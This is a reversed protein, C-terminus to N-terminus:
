RRTLSLSVCLPSQHAPTVIAARAQPALKIGDSVVIGDADIPVPVTTIGMQALLERSPPYGPNELWVCDTNRLLAQSILTITHRYGSTLFVQDPSCSIARAVQLYIAIQERLQPLGKVPPHIMNSPQMSRVCRAGLRAWVKRPFEDLAPLGMQFPLISDPRFSIPAILTDSQPLLNKTPGRPKLGLTVITGAQGRAQIYGEAALLSYAAEITGRALGLEQALSRASPIREGPKLIGSGIVDRFRGYIQRYFPVATTKDLPLISSLSAIPMALSIHSQPLRRILINSRRYGMSWSSIYNISRLILGVLKYFVLIDLTKSCFSQPM